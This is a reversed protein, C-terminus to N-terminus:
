ETFLILGIEQKTFSKISNILHNMASVSTSHCDVVIVIDMAVVLGNLSKLDFDVVVEVSVVTVTLM